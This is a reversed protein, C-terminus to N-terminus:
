RRVLYGLPRERQVVAFQVVRLAHNRHSRGHRTLTEGVFFQLSPVLGEQGEPRDRVQSSQLTQPGRGRLTTGRHKGKTEQAKADNKRPTEAHACELDLPNRSPMVEVPM